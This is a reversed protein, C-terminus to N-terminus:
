ELWGLIFDSTNQFKEKQELKEYYLLTDRWYERAYKWQSDEARTGKDNYGRKRQPYVIKCNPYFLKIKRLIESKQTLFTGFFERTSWKQTEQLFLLLHVKSKVAIQCLLKYSDDIEMKEIREELDLRLWWQIEEPLDWVIMTLEFIEISNLKSLKFTIEKGSITSDAVETMLSKIRKQNIVLFSNLRKEFGSLDFMLYDRM